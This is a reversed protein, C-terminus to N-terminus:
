GTVLIFLNLDSVADSREEVTTSVKNLHKANALKALWSSRHGLAYRMETM